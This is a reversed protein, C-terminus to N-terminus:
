THFEVVDGDKLEYERQVRQGDFKGEGWIKAFKLSAAFDKHISEAADLVTAGHPLIVPDVLAVDKGIQKTYVRIVALAEFLMRKFRELSADELVSTEAIAFEGFRSKLWALGRVSDEEFAKHGVVVARRAYLRPDDPTVSQDPVLVINKSKLTAIVYDTREALREDQLDCILAVIDANRILNSLYPEYLEDSIPPTDILQLQVTEFTMMGTQPERTTYPYDAVLPKANTLVDLLSSKGTNPAGILIIQGAGEREVHDHAPAHKAGHEKSGETAQKKLLSIKAKMEAQLKDTGKHKPMIRLLEEAMRLKERPDHEVRFARELEYYQPPLNAPM